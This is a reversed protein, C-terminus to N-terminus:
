SPGVRQYAIHTLIFSTNERDKLFYIRMQFVPIYISVSFIALYHEKLSVLLAGHACLSCKLLQISLQPFMVHFITNLSSKSLHTLTQWVM